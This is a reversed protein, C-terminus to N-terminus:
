GSRQLRKSRKPAYLYLFGSLNEILEYIVAKVANLLLKVENMLSM